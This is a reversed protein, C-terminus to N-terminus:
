SVPFEAEALAKVFLEPAKQSVIEVSREKLNTNIEAAADVPRLFSNPRIVSFDKGKVKGDNSPKGHLYICGIFEDM